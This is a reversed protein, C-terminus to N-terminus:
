SGDFDLRGAWACGEFREIETHDRTNRMRHCWDVKWEEGEGGERTFLFEGGNLSMDGAGWVDGTPIRKLGQVVSNWAGIM